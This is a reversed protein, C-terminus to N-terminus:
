QRAYDLSRRIADGIAPEVGRLDFCLDTGDLGRPENWMELIDLAVNEAEGSAHDGLWGVARDVLPPYNRVVILDDQEPLRTRDLRYGRISSDNFTAHTFDARFTLPLDVSSGRESASILLADFEGRFTCDIVECGELVLRRGNKEFNCEDLVCGSFSQEKLSASAFDVRRWINRRGLWEGTGLAGYVNARRFSCDVVESGWLRLDMLSASDFLCNEIRAAFFRLGDVQARRLDLSKWAVGASPDHQDGFTVPSATLPIGRLDVRGDIEGLEAPKPGGDRLWGLVAIRLRGNEPEYWRRKLEAATAM